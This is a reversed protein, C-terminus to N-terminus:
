THPSTFRGATIKNLTSSAVKDLFERDLGSAKAYSDLGKETITTDEPNYSHLIKSWIYAQKYEKRDAFISAISKFIETDLTDDSEYLELAHYLLNLTKKPDRKAYYSALNVQRNPRELLENGELAIFKSLAQENLYRSWHFFLLDPHESHQTALSIEKIRAQAKMVNNIRRTKKVKLKIHEIKSAHAMCKEYGEYAILQQFKNSDSAEIKHALNAFGVAIRERKCWTDEQFEQCIEPNQDCLEAFNPGNECAMLACLPLFSAIKYFKM